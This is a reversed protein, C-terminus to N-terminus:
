RSPAASSTPPAAASTWGTTPRCRRVSCRSRSRRLHCTTGHSPPDGRVLASRSSVHECRQPVAARLGDDDDHQRGQHRGAEDKSREVRPRQLLRHDARHQALGGHRLGAEPEPRRARRRRLVGQVRVCELLEERLAQPGEDPRRGGARADVHALQREGGLRTTPQEVPRAHALVHRDGVTVTRRRAALDGHRGVLDLGVLRRDPGRDLHPLEVARDARELPRRAGREPDDPDVLWTSPGYQNPSRRVPEAACFSPKSVM